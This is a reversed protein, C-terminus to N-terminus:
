QETISEATILVYDFNYLRVIDSFSTGSRFKKTHNDYKDFCHGKLRYYGISHLISKADDVDSIIMGASILKAVLQDNNFVPKPYTYMFDASAIGSLRLRERESFVTYM